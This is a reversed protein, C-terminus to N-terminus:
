EDCGEVAFVRPRSSLYLRDCGQARQWEGDLVQYMEVRDPGLVRVIQEMTGGETGRVKLQLEMPSGEAAADLLCRVADSDAHDPLVVDEQSGCQALPERESLWAPQHRACGVLATSMLLVVLARQHRRGKLRALSLANEPDVRAILRDVRAEGARLLADNAVLQWLVAAVRSGPPCCVAM